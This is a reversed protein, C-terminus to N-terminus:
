LNPTSGLINKLRVIIQDCFSKGFILLSYYYIYYYVSRNIEIGKELQTCYQKFIKKGKSRQISLIPYSYKSIDKRIYDTSKLSYKKDIYETISFFNNVFNLSNEVTIEGPKYLLEETSSSGFMPKGRLQEDQIILSIDCFASPYNLTIEALLYLQYLLGGDFRDTQYLLAYERKLCFGSIFVSKRFLEQYTDSGKIFYKTKPYYKFIEEKGNRHIYKHTKLIYGLSNNNKIFEIFPLINPTNFQDDDGMFIIYDGSALNILNRLNGDYGLNYKNLHLHINFNSNIKFKEVGNIIEFRKPSNDECIIIEIEKCCNTDISELLRVLENPRNYSPICISVTPSM